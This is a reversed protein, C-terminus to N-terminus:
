HLICEDLLIFTFANINVTDHVTATTDAARPQVGKLGVVRSYILLKKLWILSFKGCGWSWMKPCLAATFGIFCMGDEVLLM